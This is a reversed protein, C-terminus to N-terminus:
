DRALPCNGIKHKVVKGVGPRACYAYIADSGTRQTCGVPIFHLLGNIIMCCESSPLDIFYEESLYAEGGCQGNNEILSHTKHYLCTYIKATEDCSCYKQWRSKKTWREMEALIEKTKPHRKMKLEVFVM